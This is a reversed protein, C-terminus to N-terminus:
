LVNIEKLRDEIFQNTYLTYYYGKLKMLEDHTGKETVEGHQVVLILDSSTITSLRHAIVFSTRDKLINAIATQIVYETQTDISSTAEDLVLIRPDAIIARAFSILQKQGQSLRNGGEGVDTDYGKELLGIFGHANAAKAAAVVEEDTADLRGYRINEKITGSFLHPTQMVYGLNEHLWGISRKKYDVGDILIQGETPQYFRCLLNVITSKGAGTEGVLAVTSGAKVKLNFHKLIMPSTEYKFSVDKFEVEGKISEYNEKKPNTPTGYKAIVEPTDVLEPKYEIINFVREAAVQAMKMTNTVRAVTLVPDFFSTAYSIFMFLTGYGIAGNFVEMGGLYSMMAIGFGFLVSLMQYYCSSIVSSRISAHQFTAVIKSFGTLNQAELVLSKSTKAASIGENLASSVHSQAKRVRWAQKMVVRRFLTGIVLTIPVVILMILTLKPSAILMFILIFFLKFVAAVLDSLGWSILEGVRSTDSTMRSLLWGVSYKDFFSYSLEQLHDHCASTLVEYIKMELRSCAYVYVRVLVGELIAMGALLAVLGWFGETVGTGIFKDFGYDAVFKIFLTENLTLLVVAVLGIYLQNRISKTTAFVKKWLKWNIKTSLNIDDFEEYM